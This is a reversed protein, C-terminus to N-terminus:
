IYLVYLMPEYMQFVCMEWYRCVCVRVYVDASQFLVTAQIYIYFMYIIPECMQSVRAEGLIQVCMCPYVCRCRSVANREFEYISYM